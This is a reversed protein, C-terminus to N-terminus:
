PPTKPSPPDFVEDDDDDDDYLIQLAGYTATLINNTPAEMEPQILDLIAAPLWKSFSWIAIVWCGTM